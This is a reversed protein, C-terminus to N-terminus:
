EIEIGGEPIRNNNPMIVIKYDMVRLMESVLSLQLDRSRETNIRAWIAANSMGLRKALDANSLGKVDMVTKIAERGKMEIVEVVIYCVAIATDVVKNIRKQKKPFEFPNKPQHVPVWEGPPLTQATEAPSYTSRIHPFESSFTRKFIDVFM